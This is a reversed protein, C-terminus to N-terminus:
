VWVSEPDNEVTLLTQTPKSVTLPNSTEEGRVTLLPEQDGSKDERSQDSRLERLKGEVWAIQREKDRVGRRLEKARSKSKANLASDLYDQRVEKLIELNEELVRRDGCEEVVERADLDYRVIRGDQGWHWDSWRPSKTSPAPPVLSLQCFWGWEDSIGWSDGSFRDM